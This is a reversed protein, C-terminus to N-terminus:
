ELTVQVVSPSTKLSVLISGASAVSSSLLTMRFISLLRMPYLLM